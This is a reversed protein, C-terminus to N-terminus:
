TVGAGRTDEDEGAGLHLHAGILFAVAAIQAFDPRPVPMVIMEVDADGAWCARAATHILGRGRWTVAAGIRPLPLGIDQVWWLGIWRLWGFWVGCFRRLGVWGIRRFRFRFRFWDRFSFGM